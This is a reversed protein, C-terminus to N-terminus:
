FSEGVEILIKFYIFYFYFFIQNVYFFRVGANTIGRLASGPYRIVSLGPHEFVSIRGSLPYYYGDLILSIQAFDPRFKLSLPFCKRFHRHREGHRHRTRGAQSTNCGNTEM